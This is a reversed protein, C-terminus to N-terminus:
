VCYPLMRRKTGAPSDGRRSGLFSCLCSTTMSKSYALALKGPRSNALWKTLRKRDELVERDVLVGLGFPAVVVVVGGSGVAAVCLEVWGDFFLVAEDTGVEQM